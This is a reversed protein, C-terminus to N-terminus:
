PEEQEEVRQRYSKWLLVELEGQVSLFSNLDLKFIEMRQVTNNEVKELYEAWRDVKQYFDSQVPGPIDSLSVVAGLSGNPNIQRVQITGRQDAPLAVLVDALERLAATSTDRFSIFSGQYELGIAYGEGEAQGDVTVERLAADVVVEFNTAGPVQVLNVRDLQTTGDVQASVIAGVVTSDEAKFSGNTYVLGQMRTGGADLGRGDILVDGGAVLAVLDSELNMQGTVTVGGTCVIAGNGTVKGTITLDGEVYLLGSDLHLDGVILPGTARAKGDKIETMTPAYPVFSQQGAAPDYVSLDLIPLNQATQGEKVEGLVAAGPSLSVRGATRVDGTVETEAGLEVATSSGDNSVVNGPQKEDETVGGALAELSSVSYVDLASGKVKGASAVAFPFQDLSLIAEHVVRMSGVQGVGVLHVSRKPVWVGNWGELAVDSALANTSFPVDGFRDFTLQGRPAKEGADPPYVFEGSMGVQGDLLDAAALAVVSEGYLEADLEKEADVAVAIDARSMVLMTAILLLFLLSSVLVPM